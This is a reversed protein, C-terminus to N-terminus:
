SGQFFSHSFFLFFFFVRFAGRRITDHDDLSRRENKRTARGSNALTCGAPWHGNRGPFHSAAFAFVDIRGARRMPHWPQRQGQWDPAGAPVSLVITASNMWPWLWLVRRLGGEAVVDSGARVHRHADADQRSDDLIAAQEEGLAADAPHDQHRIPLPEAEPADDSVNQLTNTKHNKRSFGFFLFSCRGAVGVGEQDPSLLSLFYVFLVLL